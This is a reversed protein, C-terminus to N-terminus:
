YNKMAVVRPDHWRVGGGCRRLVTPKTRDYLPGLFPLKAGCRWCRGEPAHLSVLRPYERVAILAGCKHCYTDLRDYPPSHLYTYNHTKRSVEYVLRAPGGGRPNGIHIHLPDERRLRHLAPTVAEPVPEEMYINFEVLTATDVLQDLLTIASIKYNADGLLPALYDFVVVDAAKLVEIKGLGQTRVATIAVVRDLKRVLSLACEHLSPELGELVVVDVRWRRALSVIESADVEIPEESGAAETLDRLVGCWEPCEINLRMTAPLILRMAAGGPAAHFIPIAEVCGYGISAVGLRCM